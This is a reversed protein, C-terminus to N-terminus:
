IIIMKHALALMKIRKNLSLVIEVSCELLLLLFITVLFIEYCASTKFLTLFFKDLSLSELQGQSLFNFKFNDMNLNFCVNQM